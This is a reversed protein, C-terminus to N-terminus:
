FANYRNNRKPKEVLLIFMTRDEHSTGWIKKAQNSGRKSESLNEHFDCFDFKMSIQGTNARALIHPCDSPCWRM